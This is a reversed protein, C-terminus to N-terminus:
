AMVGGDSGSKDGGCWGWTIVAVTVRRCGMRPLFMEETQVAMLWLRLGSEETGIRVAVSYSPHM